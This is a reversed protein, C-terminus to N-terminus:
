AKVLQKCKIWLVFGIRIIDFCTCQEDTALAYVSLGLTIAGLALSLPPFGVTISAIAGTFTTIKDLTSKNYRLKEIIKGHKTRISNEIM